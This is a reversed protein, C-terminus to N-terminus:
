GEWPLAPQRALSTGSLLMCRFGSLARLEIAEEMTVSISSAEDARDEIDLLAVEGVPKSALELSVVL